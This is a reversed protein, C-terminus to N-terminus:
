EHITEKETLTEPNSSLHKLEEFRRRNDEEALKNLREAELPNARMLSRYRIEPELYHEFSTDVEPSDWVLPDLGQERREPDFRYM